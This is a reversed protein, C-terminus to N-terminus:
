HCHLLPLLGMNFTLFALPEEGRTFDRFILITRKDPPV